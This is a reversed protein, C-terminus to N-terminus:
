LYARGGVGALYPSPIWKRHPCSRHPHGHEHFSHLFCLPLNTPSILDSFIFSGLTAWLSHPGPPGKQLWCPLAPCPLPLVGARRDRWSKVRSGEPSKDGTDSVGGKSLLKLAEIRSGPALTFSARHLTTLSPDSLQSDRPLQSTLLM